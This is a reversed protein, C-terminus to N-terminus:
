TSSYNSIYSRLKDMIQAEKTQGIENKMVIIEHKLFDFESVIDELFLSLDQSNQVLPLSDTVYVAMERIKAYPLSKDAIIEVIKNSLIEKLKLKLEEVSLSKTEAM